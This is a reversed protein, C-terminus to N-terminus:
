KNLRHLQTPQSQVIRVGAVHLAQRVSSTPTACAATQTFVVYGQPTQGAETFDLATTPFEGSADRYLYGSNPPDGFSAVGQWSFLCSATYSALASSVKELKTVRKKLANLQAPTVANPRTASYTFGAAAFALVGILIGVGVKRM